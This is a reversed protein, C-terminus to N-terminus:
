LCGDRRMEGMEGNTIGFCKRIIEEDREFEANSRAEELKDIERILEPKLDNILGSFLCFAAKLNNSSSLVISANIIEDLDKLTANLDVMTFANIEYEEESM